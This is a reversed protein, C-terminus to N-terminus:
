SQQRLQRFVDGRPTTGGDERLLHPAGNRWMYPRTAYWGVAQLLENEDLMAAVHDLMARQGYDGETWANTESVITPRVVNHEHMWDVWLNWSVTWDIPELCHYIHVHWCHPVPGEHRLYDELWRYGDGTLAVGPAAYEIGYLAIANTLAATEDPQMSAQDSREPENWLLWFTDPRREFLSTLVTDNEHWISAGWIMPVYGPAGTQEFRWDYWWAPRLTELMMPVNDGSQWPAGLGLGSPPSPQPMSILPLRQTHQPMAALPALAASQMLRRRTMM